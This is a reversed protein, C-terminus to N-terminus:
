RILVFHGEFYLISFVTFVFMGASANDPLLQLALIASRLMAIPGAEPSLLTITDNQINDSDSETKQAQPKIDTEGTSAVTAAM